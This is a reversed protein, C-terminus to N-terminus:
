SQRTHSGHCWRRATEKAKVCAKEMKKLYSQSSLQDSGTRRSHNSALLHCQRSYAQRWDVFSCLVANIENGCNNDVAELIRHLLKILYHQTSTNKRNGYQSPDLNNEMDEIVMEAIAKEQIKNLNLLSAIPRLLDIKEPPFAKPIPTITEKKYIEAWKGVLISKNIIDRVPICLYQSCEKILTAPIDGSVTSKKTKINELM